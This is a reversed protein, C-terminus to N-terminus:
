SKVFLHEPFLSFRSGCPDSRTGRRKQKRKLSASRFKRLIGNFGATTTETKAAPCLGEHRCFNSQSPHQGQFKLTYIEQFIRSQNSYGFTAVPLTKYLVKKFIKCYEYSFEQTPIEKKIFNYAQLKILFLSWCLCKRTFIALNKLAGIKFFMQSHNSKHM